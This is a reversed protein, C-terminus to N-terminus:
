SLPTIFTSMQEAQAPLFTGMEKTGVGFHCSQRQLHHWNWTFTKQISTQAGAAWSLSAARHELLGKWCLGKSRTVDQGKADPTWSPAQVSFHWYEGKESSQSHPQCRRPFSCPQFPLSVPTPGTGATPVHCPTTQVPKPIHCSTTQCPIRSPAFSPPARATM